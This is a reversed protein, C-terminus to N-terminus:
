GGHMSSLEIKNGEIADNEKGYAEEWLSEKALSKCTMALDNKCKM